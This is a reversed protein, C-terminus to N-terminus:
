SRERKQKTWQSVTTESIHLYSALRKQDLSKRRLLSKLRDGQFQSMLFPHFDSAREDFVQTTAALVGLFHEADALATACAM